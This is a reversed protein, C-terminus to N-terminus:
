KAKAYFKAPVTAAADLTPSGPSGNLYLYFTRLGVWPPVFVGHFNLNRNDGATPVTNYQEWYTNGTGGAGDKVTVAVLGGATASTARWSTHCLEMTTYGDGVTAITMKDGNGTVAATLQTAEFMVSGPSIVGRFTPYMTTPASAGEVIEAVLVSNAPVTTDTRVAWAYGTIYGNGDVTATLWIRNTVSATMLLNGSAAFSFTIGGIMAIGAGVAVNHGSPNTLAGGTSIYPKGFFPLAGQELKGDIDNALNALDTALNLADAAQPYRILNKATRTAM